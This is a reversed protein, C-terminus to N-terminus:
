FNNKNYPLILFICIKIKKKHYYRDMSIMRALMGFPFM